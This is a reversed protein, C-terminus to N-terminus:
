CAARGLYTRTMVLTHFFINYLSRLLIIGVLRTAAKM